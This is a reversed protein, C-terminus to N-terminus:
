WTHYVILHYAVFVIAAITILIGGIITSLRSRWLWYPKGFLGLLTVGIGLLIITLDVIIRIYLPPDKVFLLFLLM